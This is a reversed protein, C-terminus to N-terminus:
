FQRSYGHANKVLNPMFDQSLDVVFCMKTGGGGGWLILDSDRCKLTKGLGEAISSFM